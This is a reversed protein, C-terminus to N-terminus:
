FDCNTDQLIDVLCKMRLRRSIFINNKKLIKIYESCNSKGLIESVELNGNRTSNLKM